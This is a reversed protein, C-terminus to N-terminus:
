ENWPRVIIHENPGLIVMYVFRDDNCLVRYLTGRETQKIFYGDNCKDCVFNNDRIVIAFPSKMEEPIKQMAFVPSAVILVSFFVNLMSLVRCM